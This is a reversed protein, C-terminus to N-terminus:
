TGEGRRRGRVAAAKKTTGVGPSLRNALAALATATERAAKRAHDVAESRRKGKMTSAAGACAITGVLRRDHVVAAAVVALEAQWEGDNVDWGRRGAAALRRALEAPMKAARGVAAPDMALYLRGSATTELPVESGIEPAARLLGSGEVRDLVVLRGARPAVVFFTEGFAAAARELWPRAAAVLPEAALLGSALRLLGTGLQWRGEADREVLDLGELTSLLRHATPRAIELREGLRAVPQAGGERLAELLAVAKAVTGSKDM